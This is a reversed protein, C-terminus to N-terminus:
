RVTVQGVRWPHLSCYYHYTGETDFNYAFREGTNLIDSNFLGIINGKEDISQVTHPSVDDNVWVVTTDKSIELNLPIYFGTHEINANGNPIIVNATTSPPSEQRIEQEKETEIVIVKNEILFKIANLFETESIDGQGYWLATNKIWDPVSQASVFSGPIIVMVIMIAILGITFKLKTQVM